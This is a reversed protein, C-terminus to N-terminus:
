HSMLFIFYFLLQLIENPLTCSKWFDVFCKLHFHLLFFLSPYLINCFDIKLQYNTTNKKNDNNKCRGFLFFFLTCLNQYPVRSLSNRIMLRKLYEYSNGIWIIQTYSNFYTLHTAEKKMCEFDHTKFAFLLLLLLLGFGLNVSWITWIFIQVFPKKNLEIFM